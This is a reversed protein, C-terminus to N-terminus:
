QQGDCLGSSEKVFAFSNGDCVKAKFDLSEKTQTTITEIKRNTDDVFSVVKFVLIGVVVLAALILTGFITIWINLLRLQRVLQKLVLEDM